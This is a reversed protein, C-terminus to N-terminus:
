KNNQQNFLSLLNGLPLDALSTLRHDALDFNLTHTMQNPIAVCWLGARKAALVGNASDELALAQNPRIQLASVASLYVAPDPKARGEVDDRCCIVDFSEFLKLQKLHMDVWSHASSSALGVKLGLQRASALYSEVGPLVSQAALLEADRQRRPENIAHYDLKRGIQQELHTFPHFGNLTGIGSQWLDLPIEYGFTRYVEQWSLFETTESDLILGDFDFILAKIM